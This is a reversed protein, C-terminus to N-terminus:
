TSYGRYRAVLVLSDDTDRSYRDLIHDAIVQVPGEIQLRDAFGSRIGDTALILVDGPQVPLRGVLLPPLQYGVVGGRMLLGHKNSRGPKGASASPAQPQILIGDVDGVGLWTMVNGGAEFSALSMVAGRTHLLERNCRQVLPLIPEHAHAELTAVALRGALAAEEGHGLGDVVAVLTGGPFPKVVFADGSEAQGALTRSAVAWELLCPLETDAM